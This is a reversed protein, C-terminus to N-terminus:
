KIVGAAVLLVTAVIPLLVFIIWIHKVIRGSIFIADASVETRPNFPNVHEKPSISSSSQAIRPQPNERKLRRNALEQACPEKELCDPDNSWKELEQRSAQGIRDEASQTQEKPIHYNM